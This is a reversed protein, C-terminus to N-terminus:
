TSVVRAMTSNHLEPELLCYLLHRGVVNTPFVKEIGDKSTLLQTASKKPEEYVIGANLFIMDLPNDSHKLHTKAARQMLKLDPVDM